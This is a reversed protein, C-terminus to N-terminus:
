QLRHDELRFQNGNVIPDPRFLMWAILGWPFFFVCAIAVFIPNKGRRRADNVAAKIGYVIAFIFIAVLFFVVAREM